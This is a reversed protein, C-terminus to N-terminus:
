MGIAMRYLTILQEEEEIESADRKRMAIIKRVIKTDYGMSKAEAYVAAIDDAIGAKEEELREIREVTQRLQEAAASDMGSNHGIDGARSKKGPRKKPESEDIFDEDNQYRSM